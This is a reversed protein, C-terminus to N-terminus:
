KHLERLIGQFRKPGVSNQICSRLLDGLSKSVGGSHILYAPYQAQLFKPLQRILRTAVPSIRKSKKTIKRRKKVPVLNVCM